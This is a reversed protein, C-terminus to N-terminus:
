YNPYAAWSCRYVSTSVKIYSGQECANLLEILKKDRAQERPLSYFHVVAGAGIIASIASLILTAFVARKVVTRLHVVTYRVTTLKATRCSIM